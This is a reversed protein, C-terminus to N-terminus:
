SVLTEYVCTSSTALITVILWKRAKSMTRPNLPDDEGDWTVEFQKRPDIQEEVPAQSKSVEIAPAVHGHQDAPQIQDMIQKSLRPLSVTSLFRSLAIRSDTDFSTIILVYSHVFDCGRGTHVDGLNYFM